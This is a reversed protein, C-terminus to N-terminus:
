TTPLWTLKWKTISSSGTFVIPHDPVKYLSDDREYKIISAEFREPGKQAVSVPLLALFSLYFVFAGSLMMKRNFVWRVITM